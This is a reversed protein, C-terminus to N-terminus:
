GNPGRQGLMEVRYCVAGIILFPLVVAALHFALEDDIFRARAQVGVWCDPCRTSGRQQSTM